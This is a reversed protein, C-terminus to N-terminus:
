PGSWCKLFKRMTARERNYYNAGEGVVNWSMPLLPVLNGPKQRLLILGWARTREGGICALSSVFALSVSLLVSFEQLAQSSFDSSPTFGSDTIPLFIMITTSELRSALPATCHASVWVTWFWSMMIRRWTIFAKFCPAFSIMGNNKRWFQTLKIIVSLSWTHNMWHLLWQPLPCCPSLDLPKHVQKRRWSCTCHSSALPSNLYRIYILEITSVMISLIWRERIGHKSSSRRVWNIRFGLLKQHPEFHQFNIFLILFAM